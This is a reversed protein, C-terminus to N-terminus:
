LSSQPPTNYSYFVLLFKFCKQLYMNGMVIFTFFLGNQMDIMRHSCSMKRIRCDAGSVRVLCCINHPHEAAINDTSVSIIEYPDYRILRICIYPRILMIPANYGM